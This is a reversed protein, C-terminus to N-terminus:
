KQDGSIKLNKEKSRFANGKEDDDTARLARAFYFFRGPVESESEKLEETALSVLSADLLSLILDVVFFQILFAFSICVFSKTLRERERKGSVNEM